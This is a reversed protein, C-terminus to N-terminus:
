RLCQPAPGPGNPGPGTRTRDGRVRGPVRLQDLLSEGKLTPAAAKVLGRRVAGAMSGPQMFFYPFMCIRLPIVAAASAATVAVLPTTRVAGAAYAAFVVLLM